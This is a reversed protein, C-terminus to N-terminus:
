VLRLVYPILSVETDATGDEDYDLTARVETKAVEKLSKYTNRKFSFIDESEKIEKEFILELVRFKSWARFEEKDYLKSYDIENDIAKLHRLIEAKVERHLYLFSNRGKPLYSFISPEHLKLDNDSSFHPDASEEIIEITFDKTEIDSGKTARVTITKTGASSYAWPMFKSSDSSQGIPLEVQNNFVEFFDEGTDPKIELLDIESGGVCVTSACDILFSEGIRATNDIHASILIM